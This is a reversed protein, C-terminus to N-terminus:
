RSEIRRVNAGIPFATRVDLGISNKKSLVNVADEIRAVCSYIGIIPKNDALFDFLNEIVALFIPPQM